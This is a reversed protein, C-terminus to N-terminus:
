PIAHGKADTWLAYWDERQLTIHASRATAILRALKSTGIVPLPQSPHAM